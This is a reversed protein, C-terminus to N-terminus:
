TPSKRSLAAAVRFFRPLLPVGLIGPVLYRLWFLIGLAAAEETGILPGLLVVLAVDRTGVGAFTLPVLGALIAVPVRAAVAAWFPTDGTVGLAAVMMLVQILHGFWIAMSWGLIGLTAAPRRRLFGLGGSWAAGLSRLPRVRQLLSAVPRDWFLLLLGAGGAAGTWLANQIGGGAIAFAITALVFLLTLESLKEWIGLVIAGPLREADNEAMLGAKLVDGMKGPLFMNLANAAFTAETAERLSLTFGGAWGLAWLRGVSALILALLLVLSAVLLIPDTRGLATWIRDFDLQFWLLALVTLSIALSLLKKM